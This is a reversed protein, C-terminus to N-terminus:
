GPNATNKWFANINKLYTIQAFKGGESPTDLKGAEVCMSVGPFYTRFAPPQSQVQVKWLTSNVPRLAPGEM